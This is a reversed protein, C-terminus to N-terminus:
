KHAEPNTDRRLNDGPQISAFKRYLRGTDSKFTIALDEDGREIAAVIEEMHVARMDFGEVEFPVKLIKGFLKVESTLGGSLKLEGAENKLCIERVKDTNAMTGTIENLSQHSGQIFASLGRIKRQDEVTINDPIQFKVSLWMQIEHLDTYMRYLGSISGSDTESDQIKSSKILFPEPLSASILEITEGHVWADCLGFIIRARDIDSQIHNTTFNIRGGDSTGPLNLTIKFDPDEIELKTLQPSGFVKMKLSSLRLHREPSQLDVILENIPNPAIVIESLNKISPDFIFVGNMLGGSIEIDCEKDTLRVPELNQGTISNQFAHFASGEGLKSTISLNFTLEAESRMPVVSVHTVKDGTFSRDVRFGRSDFIQDSKSLLAPKKMGDLYAYQIANRTIYDIADSADMEIFHLDFAALHKRRAEDAARSIFFYPHKKRKLRAYIDSIMKEINPDHLSYGIFVVSYEALLTRIKNWVISDSDFEMYDDSTIVISEPQSIDGHIKLLVSKDPYDTSGPLDADHSVVVIKDGYAREFLPDYNTTIIYKIRNILALSEHVDYRSPEKGYQDILFSNLGSREKKKVYYDAADQLLASGPKPADEPLEGLSSLMISPLQTGTPYGAYSSFGSGVWLIVKEERILECLTDIESNSDPLTPNITPHTESMRPRRNEMIM